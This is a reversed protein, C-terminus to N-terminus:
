STPPLQQRIAEAVRYATSKKPDPNAKMLTKALGFAFNREPDAFGLSGGNGGHGFEGGGVGQSVDGGEAGNGGLVYGLSRRSRVDMGSWDPLDPQLARMIDVREASLIRVGDLIGHRALM